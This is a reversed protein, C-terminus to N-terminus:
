LFVLEGPQYEVLRHSANHINARQETAINTRVLVSECAETLWTNVLTAHQKPDTIPHFGNYRLSVELPM